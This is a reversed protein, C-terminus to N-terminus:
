SSYQNGIRKFYFHDKMAKMKPLYNRSLLVGASGLRAIWV